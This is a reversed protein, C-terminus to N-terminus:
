SWQPSLWDAALSFSFSPWYCWQSGVAQLGSFSAHVHWCLNYLPAIITSLPGAHM